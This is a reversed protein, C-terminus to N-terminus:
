SSPGLKPSLSLYRVSNSRARLWWWSWWWVVYFFVGLFVLNQPHPLTLVILLCWGQPVEFGRVGTLRESSYQAVSKRRNCSADLEAQLDSEDSCYFVKNLSEHALVYFSM